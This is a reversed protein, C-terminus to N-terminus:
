LLISPSFQAKKEGCGIYEKKNELEYPLQSNKVTNFCEPNSSKFYILM